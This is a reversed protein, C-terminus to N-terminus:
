LKNRMNMIRHQLFVDKLDSVINFVDDYGLNEFEFLSLQLKNQNDLSWMIILRGGVKSRISKLISRKDELKKQVLKLMDTGSFVLSLEGIPNSLSVSKNQREFTFVTKLQIQNKDGKFKNLVWWEGKSACYHCEHEKLEDTTDVLDFDEPNSRRDIVPTIFPISIKKCHKCCITHTIRYYTM